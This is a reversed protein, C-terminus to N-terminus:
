AGHHSFHTPRRRAQREKAIAVGDIVQLDVATAGASVARAHHHGVSCAAPDEVAVEVVASVIGTKEHVVGVHVCNLAASRVVIPNNTDRLGAARVFRDGVALHYGVAGLAECDVVVGRIAMNGVAPDVRVVECVSPDASHADVPGIADDDGLAGDVAVTGVADGELVVVIQRVVAAVDVAIRVNAVVGAVRDADEFAMKNGMEAKRVIHHGAIAGAVIDGIEAGLM